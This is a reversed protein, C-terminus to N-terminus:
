TGTRAAPSYVASAFVAFIAGQADARGAMLNAIMDASHAQQISLELRRGAKAHADVLGQYYFVTAAPGIGGILGIHM